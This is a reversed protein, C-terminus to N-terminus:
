RRRRGPEPPPYTAPELPPPPGSFTGSGFGHSGTQFVEIDTEFGSLRHPGISHATIGSGSLDAMVQSTMHIPGEASSEGRLGALRQAANVSPGFVGYKAVRASGVGGVLVDGKAIGIGCLPGGGRLVRFSRRKLRQNIALACRVALVGQDPQPFPIGWAAFVGDGAYDIITGDTEFVAETVEGIIARLDEYIGTLDMASSIALSSGRVDFFLSTCPTLHPEGEIMGRGGNQMLLKLVKPSFYNALHANRLTLLHQRVLTSVLRLYQAVLQESEGLVQDGVVHLVTPRGMGDAELWSAGVVRTSASSVTADLTLETPQRQLFLVTTPADRLRRLIRRSVVPQLDHRPHGLEGRDARGLLEFTGDANSVTVYASAIAPVLTAVLYECAAEYMAAESTACGLREPLELASQLVRTADVPAALDVTQVSVRYGPEPTARAPRGTSSSFEVVFECDGFRLRDGDSIAVPEGRSVRQGALYTGHRSEDLVYWIGDRQFLSAHLRSILRAEVPLRVQCRSSRGVLVPQGADVVVPELGFAGEPLPMLRM